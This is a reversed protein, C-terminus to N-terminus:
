SRTHTIKVPAPGRTKRTAQAEAEISEQRGPLDDSGAIFGGAPCARGARPQEPTRARGGGGFRPGRRARRRGWAPSPWPRGRCLCGRDGPLVAGGHNEGDVGSGSLESFLAPLRSQSQLGVLLLQREPVEGRDGEGDWTGGKCGARRIQEKQTNSLDLSKQHLYCFGVDSRFDSTEVCSLKM